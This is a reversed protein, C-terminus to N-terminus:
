YSDDFVTSTRAGPSLTTLSCTYSRDKISDHWDVDGTVIVACWFSMAASAILWWPESTAVADTLTRGETDTKYWGSLIVRNFCKHLLTRSAPGVKAVPGIKPAALTKQRCFRFRCSQKANRDVLMIPSFSIYYTNDKSHFHHFYWSNWQLEEAIALVPKM